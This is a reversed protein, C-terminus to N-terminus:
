AKGRIFGGNANKQTSNYYRSAKAQSSQNMEKIKKLAEDRVSELRGMAQPETMQIRNVVSRVQMSLEFIEQLEESLEERTCSSKVAALLKEPEDASECLQELRGSNEDIESQLRIRNEMHKEIDDESGAAIEMTEKEYELFLERKKQLLLIIEQKELM